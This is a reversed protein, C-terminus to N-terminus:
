EWYCENSKYSLSGFYWYEGSDYSRVPFSCTAYGNYYGTLRVETDSNVAVYAAPFGDSHFPHNNRVYYNNVYQQTINSYVIQVNRCTGAPVLKITEM